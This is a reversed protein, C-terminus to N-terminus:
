VARALTLVAVDKAKCNMLVRACEKVTSGTTYVDDVLIIKEGSIKGTDLVKFAGKVNSEREKRGLNVQPETYTHRKLMMFEIPLSFREAIERALVVSQNFGRERLRKLHLPVPIILSYDSIKFMPYEYEAMLKGLIKGYGIKERYKFQHICHLLTTEYRGVCRAISFGPKSTLCEGCLHDNQDESVFPIGCQMCIPSRVFSIQSYCDSCFHRNEESILVKDCSICRPPFIIDALGALIRQL